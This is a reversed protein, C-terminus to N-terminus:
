FHFAYKNPIQTKCCRFGNETREEFLMSGHLTDIDDSITFRSLWTTKSKDFHRIITFGQFCDVSQITPVEFASRQVHIFSTRLRIPWPTITRAATAPSLAPLKQQATSSLSTGPTETRSIGRRLERLCRNNQAVIFAHLFRCPLGEYPAGIFRLEFDTVSNEDLFAQDPHHEGTKASRTLPTVFNM